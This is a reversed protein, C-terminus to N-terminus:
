PLMQQELSHQKPNSPSHCVCAAGGQQICSASTNWNGRWDCLGTGIFGTNRLVSSPADNQIQPLKHKKSQAADTHTAMILFAVTLLASPVTKVNSRKQIRGCCYGFGHSLPVTQLWPVANIYPSMHFQEFHSFSLSPPSMFLSMPFALRGRQEGIARQLPDVVCGSDKREAWERMRMTHHVCDGCQATRM